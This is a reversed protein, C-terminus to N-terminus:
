NYQQSLRKRIQLAWGVTLLVPPRLEDFQLQPDDVRRSAGVQRIGASLLDWREQGIWTMRYLGARQPVEKIDLPQM